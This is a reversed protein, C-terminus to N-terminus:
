AFGINKNAVDFVSYVNKLFPIGILWTTPGLDLIPLLTSVCNNQDLPVLILDKPQIAYNIGGFKFSVVTTTDCPIVYASADPVFQSGPIQQHVIAADANPLIINSTGSDIIASRGTFGIPQDNVVVDDLNITWLGITKIAPTAIVPNYNINGTFKTQDVGGLTFTGQDNVDAARSFHFSFIPNMVNQNILTSVLTPANKDMTNLNDFALGLIGDPIHQANDDSILNALGFIQNQAIFTGIQVNDIGTIGSASGIGYQIKWPNGEPKFTPSKAPDFVNHNKCTLSTCGKNPVFLNSSGTDLIVNFNQNGVTIQGFYSLDNQEDQMVTTEQNARRYHRRRSKINQNSILRSYKNLASKKTYKVYEMADMSGSLFNTGRTLKITHLPEANIIVASLIFFLFALNM